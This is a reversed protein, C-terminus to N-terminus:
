RTEVPYGKAKWGPFGGNRYWHINTYGARVLLVSAKYSKWCRPGNCYVIIRASKDSPFKSLDFTDETEDFDPSKASKERYHNWSAGPLHGEIFEAKKRVDFVQYRELNEKVWADDVVTVGQITEPTLPKVALANGSFAVMMVCVTLLTLYFKSRM